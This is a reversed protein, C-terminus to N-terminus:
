GVATEAKADGIRQGRLPATGEVVVVHTFRAADLFLCLLQAEVVDRHRARLLTQDDGARDVALPFCVRRRRDAPHESAQVGILLEFRGARGGDLDLAVRRAEDDADVTLSSSSSRIRANTTAYQSESRARRTAASSPTCFSRCKVNSCSLTSSCPKTSTM